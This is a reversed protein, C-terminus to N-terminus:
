NDNMMYHFYRCDDINYLECQKFQKDSPKNQVYKFVGKYSFYKIDTHINLLTNTMKDKVIM